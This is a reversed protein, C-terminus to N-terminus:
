SILSSYDVTASADTDYAVTAAAKIAFGRPAVSSAGLKPPSVTAQSLNKSPKLPLVPPAISLAAQM